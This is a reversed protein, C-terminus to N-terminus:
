RNISKVYTNYLNQFNTSLHANFPVNVITTYGYCNQSSTNGKYDTVHVTHIEFNKKEHVAGRKTSELASISFDKIYDFLPTNYKRAQTIIDDRNAGAFTIKYTGDSHEGCYRKSGLPIFGNIYDGDDDWQGLDHCEPATVNAIIETYVDTNISDFYNELDTNNSNYYLSDTDYQVIDDPFKSIVNILRQRVYSTCWYGIFPNFITTKADEYDVSEIKIENDFIYKEFYLSTVCMGYVSNILQKLRMYEKCNEEYDPDGAHSDKTLPKLKTKKIYWANMVNLMASPAKSSKTFYWSEIVKVADYAYIANINAMDIENVYYEAYDAKFVRGNDLIPNILKTAKHASLTSHTSKSRINKFVLKAIWHKHKIAFKYDSTKVLKGSPYMKANLAWPYASTLDKCKIHMGNNSDNCIVGVYKFNSHTLGGSYLFTRFIQYEQETGILQNVEDILRKRDMFHKCMAKKVENRVIGTQTLPINDGRLTFMEHAKPTLESLIAVDDVCYLIEKRSMYTHSNRIKNYDLDGKRKHTKTYNKAINALSTGFVGLCESFKINNNVTFSCVKSTSKAFVDTISDSLLRWFYSYEYSINADLVLLTANKHLTSIMVSLENLFRKIENINRCLFNIKGISFQWIYVISENCDDSTKSTECDFGSGINVFPTSKSIVRKGGKNILDTKEFQIYDSIHRHSRYWVYIKHTANAIYKHTYIM